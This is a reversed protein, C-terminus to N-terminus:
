SVYITEDYSQDESQTYLKYDGILDTLLEM